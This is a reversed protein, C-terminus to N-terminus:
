KGNAIPMPPIGSALAAPNISAFSISLMLIIIFSALALCNRAHHQKDADATHIFGLENIAFMSLPLIALIYLVVGIMDTWGALKAHPLFGFGVVFTALFTVFVSALGGFKVVRAARKAEKADAMILTEFVLILAALIGPAVVFSFMRAGSDSLLFHMFESTIMWNSEM